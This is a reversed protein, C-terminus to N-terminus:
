WTGLEEVLAISALTVTGGVDVPERHELPSSKLLNGTEESPEEGPPPQAQAHQQNFLEHLYKYM